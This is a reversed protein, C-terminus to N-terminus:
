MLLADFEFLDKRDKKNLSNYIEDIEDNKFDVDYDSTNSSKTNSSIDSLNTEFKSDTKSDTKFKSDTKSM